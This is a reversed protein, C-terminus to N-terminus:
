RGMLVNGLWADLHGPKELHHVAPIRADHYLRLQMAVCRDSLREASPTFGVCVTEGRGRSHNRNPIANRCYIHPDSEPLRIIWCARFQRLRDRSIACRHRDM